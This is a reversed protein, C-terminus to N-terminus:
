EAANEDGSDASVGIVIGLVIAIGITMMEAFAITGTSEMLEFVLMAIGAFWLWINKERVKQVRLYLWLMMLLYGALGLFGTEGLIMPWFSDCAFSPWAPDMGTARMMNYWYYVPSYNYQAARSGFTAFGTGFPFNEIGIRVSVKFFLNRAVSNAEESLFIRYLRRAALLFLGGAGAAAIKLTLKKKRYVLWYYLLAFCFIFGLVRTRLSLFFLVQLLIILIGAAKKMKGDLYGMLICLIGLLFALRVIFVSPHGYFLEVSRLGFREAQIPWLGFILDAGTLGILIVAIFSAHMFLHRAYRGPRWGHYLLSFTALEMWFYMGDFLSTITLDFSQIEYHVWGMMGCFIYIAAGALAAWPLKRVHAKFNWALFGASLPVSLYALLMQLPGIWGIGYTVLLEHFMFFYLLLITFLCRAFDLRRGPKKKERDRDNTKAITM